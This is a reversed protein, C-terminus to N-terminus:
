RPGQQDEQPLVKKYTALHKKSCSKARKHNM